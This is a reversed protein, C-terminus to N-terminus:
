VTAFSGRGLVGEVSFYDFLDLPAHDLQMLPPAAKSVANLIRRVTSVRTSKGTAGRTSARTDMGCNDPELALAKEDPTLSERFLSIPTFHSFSCGIFYLAV